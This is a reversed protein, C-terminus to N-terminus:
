IKDVIFGCLTKRRKCAAQQVSSKSVKLFNAVEQYNNFLIEEKYKNDLLKVKKWRSKNPIGLHSTSMKKRSEETVVRGKTSEGGITGNTLKCFQKYHAILAIEAKYADESNTVELLLKIEPFLNKSNLRKIWNAKYTRSSRGKSYLSYFIHEKFRLNLNRKTVGIYRIQKSVPDVLAYIKFTATM